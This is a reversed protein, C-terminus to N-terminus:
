VLEQYDVLLEDGFAPLFTTTFTTNNNIIIEPSAGSSSQRVGNWYVHIPCDARFSQTTTFSTAIGDAQASLNETEISCNATVSGPISPAVGESWLDGGFGEIGMPVITQPEQLKNSAVTWEVSTGAYWNEVSAEPSGSINEQIFNSYSITTATGAYWETYGKTSNFFEVGQNNSTRWGLGSNSVIKVSEFVPTGTTIAYTRAQAVRDQQSNSSNMSFRKSWAALTLPTTSTAIDVKSTYSDTVLVLWEYDDRILTFDEVRGMPTSKRLIFSGEGNTRDNALFMLAEMTTAPDVITSSLSDYEVLSLSDFSTGGDPNRIDPPLVQKLSDKLGDFVSNLEAATYDERDQTLAM